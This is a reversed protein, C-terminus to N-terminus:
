DPHLAVSELQPQGLVAVTANSRGEDCDRSAATPRGPATSTGSAMAPRGPPRRAPASCATRGRNSPRQRTAATSTDGHDAAHESTLRSEKEAWTDGLSTPGSSGADCLSPRLAPMQALPAALDKFGEGIDLECNGHAANAGNGTSFSARAVFRYTEGEVRFSAHRLSQSANAPSRLTLTTLSRKFLM